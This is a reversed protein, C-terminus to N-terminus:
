KPSHNTEGSHGSVFELLDQLNRGQADPTAGLKELVNGARNVWFTRFGFWTAGCVDWGNSSVFVIDEKPAGFADPAMQYAEPATKFKKVADVSLIHDFVGNMGATSVASDLMDPSGNSLIALPIGKAKLQLLVDLNEEFATLQAYADMLKEKQGPQLDLGLKAVAFELADGTITWFDKYRGCLTLLRTYDIQAVRWIDAIQAGQGPFFKEAEAGVAYVDFLTGYADFAIGAVRQSTM